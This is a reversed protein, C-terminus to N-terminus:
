LVRIRPGPGSASVAGAVADVQDDHAGGPFSVLEMEYEKVWREGQPHWVKKQIYANALPIARFQKDKVPNVAKLPLRTSKVMRQYLATGENVDEICVLDIRKGFWQTWLEHNRMVANEQDPATYRARDIGLVWIVDDEKTFGVTADVFYDGRRQDKGGATDVFQILQAFEAPDPRDARQFNQPDFMEGAMAMPNGQKVLEFLLPDSLREEELMERSETEPWLAEVGLEVTAPMESGCHECPFLIKTPSTDRPENCERCTATSDWYGLAPMTLVKFGVQELTGVIDLVGWRTLIVIMRSGKGYPPRRGVPFRTLLTSKLWHRQGDMVVDSRGEDWTTPDDLIITDFRKGLIPGGVGAALFTPNPGKPTGTVYWHNQAWGREYDPEVGYTARYLPQEIVAQVARSFAVAQTATNCVLGVRNRGETRGIVWSPYAISAWSSKATGPPAIIVVYPYTDADEMVEIWEAHHRFATIPEGSETRMFLRAHAELSDPAIRTQAQLTRLYAGRLVEDGTAVTV